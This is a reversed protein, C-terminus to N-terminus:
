TYTLCPPLSRLTGRSIELWASPMRAQVPTATATCSPIDQSLTPQSLGPPLAEPLPQAIRGQVTLPMASCTASASRPCSGRGVQDHRRCSRYMRCRRLLWSSRSAGWPCMPRCPYPPPLSCAPSFVFMATSKDIVHMTKTCGIGLLFALSLFSDWHLGFGPNSISQVRSGMDAMVWRSSSSCWSLCCSCPSACCMSCPL